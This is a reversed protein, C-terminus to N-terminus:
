TLHILQVFDLIEHNWKPSIDLIMLCFCFASHHNNPVKLLSFLLHTVWHTYLNPEELHFIELSRNNCLLTYVIVM